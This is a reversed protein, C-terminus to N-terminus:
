HDIAEAYTIDYGGGGEGGGEEDGRRERVVTLLLISPWRRLVRRGVGGGVRSVMGRHRSVTGGLLRALDALLLVRIM